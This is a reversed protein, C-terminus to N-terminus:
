IVVLLVCALETTHGCARISETSSSPTSTHKALSRPIERHLVTQLVSCLSTHIARCSMVWVSATCVEKVASRDTAGGKMEPV